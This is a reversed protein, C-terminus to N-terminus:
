PNIYDILASVRKSRELYDIQLKALLWMQYIDDYVSELESKSMNKIQENESTDHRIFKNLLQFLNSTFTKNISNLEKRKPEIDDAMQKLIAKKQGLQGKMRHHNYEIVSYSLEPEVIESVSIAAPNKEVFLFLGDKTLRTYGIDEMCSSINDVLAKVNPEPDLICAAVSAFCFNIIYESFSVLYDMDFDQPQELFRFGYFCDFDELSICRGILHKDLSTFNKAIVQAMSANGYYSKLPKKYFQEFLRAYELKLDIQATHLVDYINKRM